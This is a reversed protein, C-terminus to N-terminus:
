RCASRSGASRRSPSPSTSACTELDQLTAYVTGTEVYAGIEVKPIGIVGSFPAELAKQDMVATLKVM